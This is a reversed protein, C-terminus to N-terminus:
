WAQSKDKVYYIARNVGYQSKEARRGPKEVKERLESPAAEVWENRYCSKWM